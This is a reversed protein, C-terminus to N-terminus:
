SLACQAESFDAKSAGCDPCVWDAPVDEGRTGPAIGSAPDGAAEDDIHDCVLCVYKRWSM